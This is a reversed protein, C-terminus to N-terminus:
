PTESFPGHFSSHMLHGPFPMVLCAVGEEESIAKQQRMIWDALRYYFKLDESENLGNHLIVLRHIPATDPRRLLRLSHMNPRHELAKGYEAKRNIGFIPASPFPLIWEELETFKEGGESHVEFRRQYRLDPDKVPEWRSPDLENGWDDGELRLYHDREEPRIRAAAELDKHIDM